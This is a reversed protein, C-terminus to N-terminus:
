WAGGSGRGRRGSGMRWMSAACGPSRTRSSPKWTPCRTPERPRVQCLVGGDIDGGAVGPGCEVVGRAIGGRAMGCGEGRLDGRVQGAVAPLELADAGVVGALAPQRVPSPLRVDLIRQAAAQSAQAHARFASRVEGSM